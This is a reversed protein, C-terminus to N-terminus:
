KQAVKGIDDFIFVKINCLELNFLIFVFIENHILCELMIIAM